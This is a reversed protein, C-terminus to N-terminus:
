DWDEGYDHTIEEGPEIDRLTYLEEEYFVANAQRSHNVYRLENKGDIGYGSGDDELIWLVHEGDDAEDYVLPGDYCGLFTDAPIPSAAFLGHGHIPSPRVEILRDTGAAIMEAMASESFLTTSSESGPGAGTIRRAMAQKM